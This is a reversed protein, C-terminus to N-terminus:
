KIIFPRGDDDFLVDHGEYYYNADNRYGNFCLIYNKCVIVDVCDCTLESGETLYIKEEEDRRCKIDEEIWQIASELSIPSPQETSEPCDDIGVDEGDLFIGTVQGSEITMNYNKYIM